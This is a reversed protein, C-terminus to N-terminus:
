EYVLLPALLFLEARAKEGIIRRQENYADTIKEKIHKLILVTTCRSEVFVVNFAVVCKMMVM